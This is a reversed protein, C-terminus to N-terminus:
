ANVETREKLPSEKHYNDQFHNRWYNPMEKLNSKIEYHSNNPSM